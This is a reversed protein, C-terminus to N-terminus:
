YLYESSAELQRITTDFLGADWALDLVTYRNRMMQARAATGIAEARSLGIESPTVPCGARVFQARMEAYSPLLEMVRRRLDTWSDEMAGVVKAATRPAMLKEKATAAVGEEAAWGAYLRRVEKEREVPGPRIWGVAKPPTPSRFFLETFALACLTGIAVKHGHTVPVGGVSLDSMEWVHSFLHECGSVPRSSQTYQMAFGTLTLAKFLVATSDGEGKYAGESEALAKRLGNQTMAWALDNIPETGPAGESGALAAIIWDTGTIIKGALDGFGSSGLYGPAASLINTDAIIARPAPCNFTKKFGGDLLASGASSYGDVSSATAVCIYPLGAEHAAQKVLDNVTGSGVSVPVIGKGGSDKQAKALLTGLEQAYAYEAHLRPEAPYIHWGQIPIGAKSLIALVSDGAAKLTNGDAILFVGKGAFNKSLISPLEDLVNKGLRFVKTDTAVKLCEDISPVGLDQTHEM